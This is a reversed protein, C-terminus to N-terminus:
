PIEFPWEYRDPHEAQWMRSAKHMAIIGYCEEQAKLMESLFNLREETPKIKWESIWGRYWPSKKSWKEYDDLLKNLAEIAHPLCLDIRDQVITRTEKCRPRSCGIHAIREASM